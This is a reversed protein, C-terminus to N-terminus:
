ANHYTSHQIHSASWCSLSCIKCAQKWIPCNFNVYPLFIVWRYMKLNKKIYREIDEIVEKYNRVSKWVNELFFFFIQMKQLRDFGFVVLFSFSLGIKWFEVELSLVGPRICLHNYTLCHIFRIKINFKLSFTHEKYHYFSMQSLINGTVIHFPLQVVKAVNHLSFFANFTSKELSLLLIYFFLRNLSLMPLPYRFTSPRFILQQKLFPFLSLTVQETKNPVKCIM